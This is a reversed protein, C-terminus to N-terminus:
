RRPRLRKARRSLAKAGRRVLSASRAGATPTSRGGCSLTVLNAGIPEASLGALEAVSALDELTFRWRPNLGAAQPIWGLGERDTLIQGGPALRERYGDLLGLLHTLCCCASTVNNDIIFDFPGEIDLGLGAYKNREVTPYNALGLSQARALEPPDISIGVIEGVRDSFKRALSSNGIGVHLIRKGALPFRDLYDEIRAQDVSTENRSWDRWDAATVVGPDVSNGCSRPLGEFREATLQALRENSTM